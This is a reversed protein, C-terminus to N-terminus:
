NMSREHEWKKTSGECIHKIKDKQKHVPDDKCKEIYEM